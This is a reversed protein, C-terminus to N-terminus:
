APQDVKRFIGSTYAPKGDMLCCSVNGEVRIKRGDKAVFVAEVLGDRKGALLDRFYSMCYDRCEPDIIDPLSLWAVDEESYGLTERWTPNVYLFSGNPAVSQIIDKANEFLNRYMKESERLAEETRMRDTIDNYVMVVHTIEGFRNKIPAGAVEFHRDNFAWDPRHLSRRTTMISTFTCNQPPKDQNCLMKCCTEGIVDTENRLFLERLKPNYAQIRMRNDVVLIGVGAAALIAQIEENAMQLKANTENLHELVQEFSDAIIGIPDLELLTRDDLEEPKLPLTGMVMLLQNIKRRIYNIATRERALLENNEATLRNIEAAGTFNESLAKAKKIIKM